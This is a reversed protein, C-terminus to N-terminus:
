KAAGDLSATPFKSILKSNSAGLGFRLQDRIAFFLPVAM